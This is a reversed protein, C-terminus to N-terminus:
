ELLDDGLLGPEDCPLCWLVCEICSPGDDLEALFAAVGAGKRDGSLHTHADTVVATERHTYKKHRRRSLTM